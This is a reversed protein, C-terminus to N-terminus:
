QEDYPPPLLLLLLVISSLVAAASSTHTLIVVALLLLLPLVAVFPLGYFYPMSSIISRQAAALPM